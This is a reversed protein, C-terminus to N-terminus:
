WFDGRELWLIGSFPWLDLPIETPDAPEEEAETKAEQERRM